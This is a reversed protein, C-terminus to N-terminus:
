SENESREKIFFDTALQERGETVTTKKINVYIFGRYKGPVVLVIKIIDGNETVTFTCDPYLRQIVTQQKQRPLESHLM